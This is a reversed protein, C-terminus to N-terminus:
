QGDGLATEVLLNLQCVISTAFSIAHARKFHYGGDSPPVWIEKDIEKRPRNLLHRKGPRILALVVSLDVISRPKITSVIDFHSHIHALMSVIDRDDLFGWDPETNMLTVLHQNDRIGSYVSNNIFDIKCYGLDEAASYFISSLNTTPDTPINQFYVGTNHRTVSGNHLMSAPIHPLISLAKTRDPFDIDIDTQINM